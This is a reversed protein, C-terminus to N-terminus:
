RVKLAGNNMNIELPNLVIQSSGIKLSIENYTLKIESGSAHHLCLEGSEDNIVIKHGNPTELLIKEKKM